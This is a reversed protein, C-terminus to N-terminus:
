GTLNNKDLMRTNGYLYKGYLFGTFRVVICILERISRVSLLRSIVLKIFVPNGDVMRLAPLSLISASLGAQFCRKAAATFGSYYSEPIHKVVSEPNYLRDRDDPKSIKQLFGIEDGVPMATGPGIAVPWPAELDKLVSKRVAINPGVPYEGVEFIFIDSGLDQESTLLTRLNHSERIWAPVNEIDVLIRGAFINVEPYNRVVKELEVFYNNEFIIDDDVFLFVEGSARKIGRNLSNSKGLINEKVVIFPVSASLENLYTSTTDSSNNDVIILEIGPKTDAMELNEVFRQLTKQRNRTALIISFSFNSM